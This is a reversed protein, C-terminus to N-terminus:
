LYEKIDLPKTDSPAKRFEEAKNVTHYGIRISQLKNDVVNVSEGFHDVDQQSSNISEGTLNKGKEILERPSLIETEEFKNLKLKKVIKM